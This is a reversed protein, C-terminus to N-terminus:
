CACPWCFCNPSNSSGCDSICVTLAGSDSTRLKAESKGDVETAEDDDGIDDDGDEDNDEGKHESITDLLSEGDTAENSELCLASFKSWSLGALSQSARM